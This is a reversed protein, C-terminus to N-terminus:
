RRVWAALTLVAILGLSAQIISAPEPIAAPGFSFNADGQFQFDDGTLGNVTGLQPTVNPSAGGPLGTFLASPNVQDFPTVLSSNFTITSIPTKFFAPDLYTVDATLLASGSGAVTSVGPYHDSIFQDLPQTVPIGSSNTSLSYVGISAATTDPKGALILTGVNFGTGALSNAVVAPNYYLEFFSNPSQIPAVAFTAVTGNAALSTVVETFSGVATLQYTTTLGSPVVPLGNVGLLVPISAQYDLQFTKGVALPISGVALANGPGPDMGRITYVQGNVAGTPNFDIAGGHSSSGLIAMGLAWLAGVLLTRAWHKFQILM